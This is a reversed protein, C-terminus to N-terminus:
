RTWHDGGRGYQRGKMSVVISCIGTELFYAERVDEDPSHLIQNLKLTVPKLHPALNKITADSLRGLIRNRFPKQLSVSLQM